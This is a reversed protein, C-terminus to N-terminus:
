FLSSDNFVIIEKLGSSRYRVLVRSYYDSNHEFDMIDDITGSFIRKKSDKDPSYVTIPLNESVRVFLTDATDFDSQGYRSTLTTGIPLYAIEILDGQKSKVYGHILHASYSYTRIDLLSTKGNRFNGIKVGVDQYDVIPASQDIAILEGYSDTRYRIVEGESLNLSKFQELYEDSVLVSVKNGGQLGNLIYTEDNTRMNLAPYVNKIITFMDDYGSTYGSFLMVFDASKKDETIKYAVYSYTSGISFAKYNSMSYISSDKYSELNTKDRLTIKLVVTNTDLPVFGGLVYDSTLVNEDDHIYTLANKDNNVEPEPTDIKTIQGDQNIIVRVPYVGDPLKTSKVTVTNVSNLANLIEDPNTFKKGDIIVRNKVEFTEVSGNQVYMMVNVNSGLGKEKGCRIVLGYKYDGSNSYNFYAINGFADLYATTIDGVQLSFVNASKLVNYEDTDDLVICITDNNSIGTVEGSVRDESLIVEITKVQSSSDSEAISVITDLKLDQLIALEGNAYRMNIRDYKDSDIIAFNSKTNKDVFGKEYVSGVVMTRYAKIDIVDGIDDNDNDIVRVYGIEEGLIDRTVDGSYYVGNYLVAADDDINIRRLKDDYDFYTVEARGINEINPLLTEYINTKKRFDSYYICTFIDEKERYYVRVNEGLADAIDTDGCELILRQDSVLEVCDKPLSSKSYLATIDNASVIGTSHKVDFAYELMTSSNKDSITTDKGKIGVINLKNVDLFNFLLLLMNDADLVNSTISLGGLLGITKATAMYGIPYGGKAEAVFTYGAVCCLMKVADRLMIYENPYFRGNENLSIIGLDVLKEIDQSGYGNEPVDEFYGKYQNVNSGIPIFKSTVIAFEARTIKHTLDFEQTEIVGLVGFLDLIGQYKYVKEAVNNDSHEMEKDLTTDINTESPVDYQKEITDNYEADSFGEDSGDQAIAFMQFLMVMCIVLSIVRLMKRM